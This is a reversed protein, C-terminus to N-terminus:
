GRGAAWLAICVGAAVAGAVAVLVAAAAVDKARKALPHDEPSVLDVVTEVAANLLEAALVLAIALFVIAWAALPLRLFAGALVVAVAVGAHIRLNRESRWAASLGAFAYRFAAGLDHPRDSIPSRSIAAARGTRGTHAARRPM